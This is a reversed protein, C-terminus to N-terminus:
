DDYWGGNRCPYLLNEREDRGAVGHIGKQSLMRDGSRDGGEGGRGVEIANGIGGRRMPEESGGEDDEGKEDEFLGYPTVLLTMKWAVRPGNGDDATESVAHVGGHLTVLLL